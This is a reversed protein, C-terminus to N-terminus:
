YRTTNENKKEKILRKIQIQLRVIEIMENPIKINEVNLKTKILLKIYSDTLEKIQILKFERARQKVVPKSSYKKRSLKVQEKNEECYKKNRIFIKEKNRELYKKKSIAIKEKAVQRYKKRYIAIKEKNEEAYKAAYDLIKKHREANGSGYYKIYCKKCVNSYGSKISKNKSFFSLEIELKCKTCVKTEM